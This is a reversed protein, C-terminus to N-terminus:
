MATSENEDESKFKHKIFLRIKKALARKDLYPVDNLFPVLFEDQDDLVNKINLDFILSIKKVFYNIYFSDKIENELIPNTRKFTEEPPLSVVEDIQDKFLSNALSGLKVHYLIFGSTFAFVIVTLNFYFDLDLQKVDLVRCNIYEHLKYPIYAGLYKRIEKTKMGLTDAFYAPALTNATSALLSCWFILWSIVTFMCFTLVKYSHHRDFSPIQCFSVLCAFFALVFGFFNRVYAVTLFVLIEFVPSIFNM